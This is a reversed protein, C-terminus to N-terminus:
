KITYVASTITSTKWSSRAAVAKLTTTADVPVAVGM